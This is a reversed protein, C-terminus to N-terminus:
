IAIISNDILRIGAIVAALCLALRDGENVVSINQLTEAHVIEFYELEISNEKSFKAKISEKVESIQAGLKLEQEAEKLAKNLKSAESQEKETLRKNRSSMALGSEERIVPAMHLMIPLEFDNVLTSIIRFQQLDKQGFYAGDPEVIGFFKMVVLGVGNFHGPRFKGEMIQELYGFDLKLIPELGYVDEAKPIFVIDCGIDALLDIDTKETRPYKELDQPSNFQTPNVFITVVTVDYQKQSMQVLSLHGQHLAGMTPVLGISSNKIKIEKIIKKLNPKSRVIQSMEEKKVIIPQLVVNKM